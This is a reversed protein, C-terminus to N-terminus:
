EEEGNWKDIEASAENWDLYGGCKGCYFGETDRYYPESTSGDPFETIEVKQIRGIGWENLDAECHKCKM